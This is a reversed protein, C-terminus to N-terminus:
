ADTEDLHKDLLAVRLYPYDRPAFSIEDPEVSYSRLDISFCKLKGDQYTRTNLNHRTTAFLNAVFEAQSMQLSWM